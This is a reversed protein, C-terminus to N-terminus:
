MSVVSGLVKRILRFQMDIVYATLNIWFYFVMPVFAFFFNGVYGRRRVIELLEGLVIETAQSKPMRHPGLLRYFTTFSAGFCYTFLVRTGYTAWLDLLDPMAGCDSALTAMYASHDVGYQIRATPPHLLSYHNPSLPLQIGSSWLSLLWLSQMEALPPIAGVGPRIHGLYAVSTDSSSTIHRMEADQPLFYDDSLFTLDQKYGTCYIMIDPRVTLTKIRARIKTQYKTGRQFKAEGDEEIHCVFPALEIIKDSNADEPPDIYETIRSMWKPRNKYPRNIYPMAKSSKNLFVYSRGLREPPLEGAYQACGAKTGTLFWLVRQLIHDSLLWRLRSAAIWPHVYTTEMLNTILGDIPLKAKTTFGFVSFRNLVKPFSLFGGRQSMVVQPCDSKIAEYAIDMATEGCGLILVRKGAIQKRSKYESSHIKEKIHEAGRIEPKSPIVHLGSCIVIKDYTGEHQIGDADLWQVRHKTGEKNVSVIKCSLKIYKSLSFHNIYAELYDCYEPLDIHDPHERPMRFDSFCTLQKSSVLQANEYGRHRFTGGIAAEAEFLTCHYNGKAEHSLTKLAVLGAPGGGIICIRQVSPTTTNVM